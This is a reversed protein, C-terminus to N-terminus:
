GFRADIRALTDPELPGRAEAALCIDLGARNKIGLVVVDVGDMTLAYRHALDSADEGLDQALARWKASRAYDRM